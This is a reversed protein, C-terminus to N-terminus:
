KKVASYDNFLGNPQVAIIYSFRVTIGQINLTLIVLQHLGAFLQLMSDLLGLTGLYDALASILSDFCRWTILQFCAM